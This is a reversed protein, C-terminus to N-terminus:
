RIELLGVSAGNTEGALDTIDIYYSFGPTLGGVEVTKTVQTESGDSTEIYTIEGDTVRVDIGYTLNTFELTHGLADATFSYYSDLGKAAVWTPTDLSIESASGQESSGLQAERITIESSLDDTPEEGLPVGIEALYDASGSAEFGARLIGDASIEGVIHVFSGNYYGIELDDIAGSDTPVYVGYAKKVENETPIDLYNDDYDVEYSAVGLQGVAATDPQPSLSYTSELASLSSSAVSSDGGSVTVGTITGVLEGVDLGLFDPVDEYSRNDNEDIHVEMAYTGPLLFVSETTANGAAFTGFVRGFGSLDDQPTGNIGWEVHLDTGDAVGFGTAGATQAVTGVFESTSLSVVTDGDVSVPTVLGTTTDTFAGGFQEDAVVLTYEGNPLPEESQLLRNDFGPLYEGFNSGTAVVAGGGDYLKATYGASADPDNLFLAVVGDDGIITAALTVSVTFPSSDSAEPTIEIVLTGTRTGSKVLKSRQPFAITGTFSSSNGPSLGFEGGGYTFLEDSNGIEEGQSQDDPHQLEGDIEFTGNVGASGGNTITIVFSTDEDVAAARDYTGMDITGGDGATQEAITVTIDGDTVTGGLGFWGCGTLIAVTAAAILLVRIRTGLVAKSRWSRM